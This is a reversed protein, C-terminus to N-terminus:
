ARKVMHMPKPNFSRRAELVDKAMENIWEEESLVGDLPNETWSSGVIMGVIIANAEQEPMGGQLLTHKMAPLRRRYQKPLSM